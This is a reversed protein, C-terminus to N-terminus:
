PPLALFLLHCPNLTTETMVTYITVCKRIIIMINSLVVLAIILGLVFVVGLKEYICTGYVYNSMKM